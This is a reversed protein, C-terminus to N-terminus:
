FTLEELIPSQEDLIWLPFLCLFTKQLVFDDHIVQLSEEDVESPLVGWLASLGTKIVKPGCHPSVYTLFPSVVLLVGNLRKNAVKM